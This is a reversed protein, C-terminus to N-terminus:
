NYCFELLTKLFLENKGRGVADQLFEFVFTRSNSLFAAVFEGAAEADLSLTLSSCLLFTAVESMRKSSTSTIKSSSEPKRAAMLVNMLVVLLGTMRVVLPSYSSTQEQGMKIVYILGLDFRTHM